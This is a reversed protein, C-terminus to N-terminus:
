TYKHVNIIDTMIMMKYAIRNSINQSGTEDHLINTRLYCKTHHSKTFAWQTYKSYGSDLYM